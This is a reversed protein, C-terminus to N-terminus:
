GVTNQCQRYDRVAIQHRRSELHHRLAIERGKFLIASPYFHGRGIGVLRLNHLYRRWLLDVSPIRFAIPVARRDM